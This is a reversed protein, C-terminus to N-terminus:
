NKIQKEECEVPIFLPVAISCQWVRDADIESMRAFTILDHYTSGSHCLRELKAYIVSESKVLYLTQM